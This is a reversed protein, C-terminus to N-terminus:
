QLMLYAATIAAWIVFLIAMLQGSSLSWTRRQPAQSLSTQEEPGSLKDRIEKLKELKQHNFYGSNTLQEVRTPYLNRQILIFIAEEITKAKVVGSVVEKNVDRAEYGYKPIAM